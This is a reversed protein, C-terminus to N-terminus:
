SSPERDEQQPRYVYIDIRELQEEHISLVTDELIIDTLIANLEMKEIFYRVDQLSIAGITSLKTSFYRKGGRSHMQWKAKQLEWLIRRDSRTLHIMDLM